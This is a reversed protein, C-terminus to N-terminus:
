EIINGEWAKHLSVSNTRRQKTHQILGLMDTDTYGKLDCNQGRYKVIVSM